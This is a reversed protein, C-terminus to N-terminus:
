HRNEHLFAGVKEESLLAFLKECEMETVNMIVELPEEALEFFTSSTCNGM